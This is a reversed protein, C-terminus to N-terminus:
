LVMSNLANDFHDLFNDVAEGNEEAKKEGFEHLEEALALKKKTAKLMRKRHGPRIKVFDLATGDGEPIERDRPEPPPKLIWKPIKFGASSSKEQDIHKM